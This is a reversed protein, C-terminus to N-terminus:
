GIPLASCVNFVQLILDKCNNVTVQLQAITPSNYELTWTNYRNVIRNYILNNCEVCNIYNIM